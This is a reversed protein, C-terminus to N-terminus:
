WGQKTSTCGVTELVLVSQLDISAHDDVGESVVKRAIFYPRWKSRQVIFANKMFKFVLSLVRPCRRPFTRWTPGARARWRQRVGRWLQRADTVDVFAFFFLSWQSIFLAHHGIGIENSKVQVRLLPTPVFGMKSCQGGSSVITAYTFEVYVIQCLDLPVIVSELMQNERFLVLLKCPIKHM